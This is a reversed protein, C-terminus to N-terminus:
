ATWRYFEEAMADRPSRWREPHYATVYTALERNIEDYLPTARVRDISDAVETDAEIFHFYLDPDFRFLSRHTVGVLAPLAGADSRAFADAVRSADDPQMRAVILTRHKM